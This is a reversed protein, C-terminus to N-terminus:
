HNPHLALWEKANVFAQMWPSVEDQKRDAPYHAWNWPYLSRELHPMMVLHRGDDSCLAATHYSSGNPNGPYADYSYRLPIHYQDKPLPFDFRGEGHSVWIGLRTGAMNQLMVSHNELIDVNVFASEFKHSENHLMRPKAKHNKNVVGLEVMLQCGNCVGLSLTDPRNYFNDLAKKAKENYLFAGAWGKASGLVDSNSFGGVFVIMRVDELNERGSILDTMHVDKVDFGAAYLAWAMERDGNVGKERIIAARIGSDGQRKKELQWQQRTGEFGSPFRYELVQTKYHDFRQRALAEGSQLRDLQYSPSFWVDRLSDIDFEFDNTIRRIRLSRNLTPRGIQQFSIGHDKLVQVAAGDTSVQLLLAPNESFLLKLVDPESFAKLDVDLGVGPQAFCMELLATIMGGASVDHGAWVLERDILLQIANFANKFYEADAVTPPQVGLCNQTQSFSSGGLSLPAKSLDIYLLASNSAPQLVPEVVKKVDSVEGAASIIVTGPALVSKGDPYKQTMSLSDKGTPINIGLAIAFDSAAQVAEYLRADEGTNKCPWMWNASLSIGSLGGEIPAWIINTLSEAISLVSGRAADTLAAAPAHGIATAIGKEGQYDLASM